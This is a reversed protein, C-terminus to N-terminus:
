LGLRRRISLSNVVVDTTGAVGDDASTAKQLEGDNGVVVGREVVTTEFGMVVVSGRCAQGVLHEFSPRM